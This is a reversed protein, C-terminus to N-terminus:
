STEKTQQKAFSRVADPWDRLFPSLGYDRAEALAREATWGQKVRWCAIVVGTRDAGYKCHIFVPKPLSDILTLANSLTTLTPPQTGSMPFRLYTLGNTFCWGAEARKTDRSTLDLVSKVGMSALTFIGRVSPQHGRYVEPTLRTVIRMENRWWTVQDPRDVVGFNQLGQGRICGCLTGALCALCAFLLFLRKM